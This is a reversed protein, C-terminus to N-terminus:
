GAVEALDHVRIKATMLDHLLTKFIQDLAGVKGEEKAITEDVVGLISAIRKQDEVVPLAIHLVHVFNRNLTPNASGSDLSKLCLTPLFYYFFRPYNGKFDKVWLTTDHPWYDVEVYHVTGLSGKRGIVVGPGKVRAEDHFSKMGSSSVVPVTGPRQEKKTIDFGRQLVAFRDFRDVEWDEPVPGIETEKLKVQDRQDIPVPGYTFLHQMLFKKLEKAAAIVAETKEKAEQVTHLVHAIARQEALPPLPIILQKVRQATISPLPGPNSLGELDVTLFYYFVFAPLCKDRQDLTVGMVNNDVLASVSLIRKKNTKVAAGIKPFIVTDKPFPTARLADVTSPGVYNNASTMMSENGLRNM